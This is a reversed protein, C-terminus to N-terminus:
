TPSMARISHRKWTVSYRRFPRHGAQRWRLAAPCRRSCRCALARMSRRSFSCRAPATSPPSGCSPPSQGNPKPVEFLVSRMANDFQEDNKYQHEGLSQLIPGEGIQTLLDPNGFAVVLPIVLTVTGDANREVTIGEAPFVNNLQNETYTGAPVTPEFEGHIQSHARYGVTAFETSLEANVNPNYGKYPQLTVGMAPLFETYTIFQM